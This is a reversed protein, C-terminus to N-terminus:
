FFSPYRVCKHLIGIDEGMPVVEALSLRLDAETRSIDCVM